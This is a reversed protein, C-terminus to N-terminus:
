KINLLRLLDNKVNSYNRINRKKFLNKKIDLYITDDNLILNSYEIFEKKNKAVFGTIGHEVREYLCGFGMTVIPVCLERAEEAALCYVETKHGPTLFLRSRKLDNILM